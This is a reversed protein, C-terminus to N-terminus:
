AVRSPRGGKRGPQPTYPPLGTVHNWAAGRYVGEIAGRIEDPLGLRRAIGVAGMGTEQRIRVIERVLNETLRACAHSEGPTHAFNRATGHRASDAQNEKKTGWRLNDLRNNAPNGDGHLCEMGEPCPGAFAELVLRHVMRVVNRGLYVALYGRTRRSPKLDRWEDSIKPYRGPIVCSQVRGDDSVRYGPKIARFTTM